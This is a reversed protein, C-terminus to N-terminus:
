SQPFFGHRHQITDDLIKQFRPKIESFFIALAFGEERPDKEKRVVVGKLRVEKEPSSDHSFSPVLLLIDLQTMLPVDEKVVCLVGHSSINLAKAEMGSAGHGIQFSFSEAIRASRRREVLPKPVKM